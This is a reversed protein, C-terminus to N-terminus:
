CVYHNFGSTFTAIGRNDISYGEFGVLKEIFDIGKGGMAFAATAFRDAQYIDPGIVTLSVIENVSQDTLPNYVHSGRFYTGSTAIATNALSVVKVIEQINFPNRIGVKWPHGSVQIDGGAEIYFNTIKQKKLIQAANFIAWGKVLGSPNVVGHHRIDFYGNTDKQTQCCLELIMQMESSVAQGRNYRAVQSDNKFPSYQDDVYTFYNFVDNLPQALRGTIEVTIPM